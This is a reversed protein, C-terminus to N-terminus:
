HAPGPAGPGPVAISGALLPLVIDDVVHRAFTDDLAAGTMMQRFIQAEIVEHALRALTGAAVAPLEGRAVARSIIQESVSDENFLSRLSGALERDARMAHVLGSMMAM